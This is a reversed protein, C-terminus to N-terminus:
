EVRKKSRRGQNEYVIMHKLFANYAAFVAISFGPFGDLLGLKLFYSRIFTLPLTMAITLSSTTRGDRLMQEAGLPAYRSGIMEYHEIVSNVSRHSLDSKLTGVKSGPEMEISEHVAMDKWRCKNKDFLRLQFDPYWGSHNIEKGMYVTKRPIRYADSIASNSESILSQIEKSLEPTVTEDADISLIWDHGCQDVAFQKQKGFGLWDQHITRAGLEKAIEVTRDSSGSDVVVLEDAWSVSKLASGINQEENLTIIAVSIRM